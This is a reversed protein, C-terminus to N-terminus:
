SQETMSATYASASEEFQGPTKQPSRPAGVQKHREGGGARSSQLHPIADLVPVSTLKEIDEGDRVTTDQWTAFAVAGLVLGFSLVLGLAMYQALRGLTATPRDPVTPADLVQFEVQRSTDSLSNAANAQEISTRTASLLARASELERQLSQLELYQPSSPDPFPHAAQFEDVRKAAADVQDQYIQLQKEYFQRALVNQEVRATLDWARFQDITSPGVQQSLVPNSDSYAIKVTNSGLPTVMLKGRVDKIIRDRDAEDVLRSAATTTTLISAVFSDTQLLQILKDTQQQGPSVIFGSSANPNVLTDLASREVWIRATAEYQTRALFYTGLFTATILFLLVPIYLRRGRFFTSLYRKASM